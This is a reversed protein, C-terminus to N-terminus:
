LQNVHHQWVHICRSWNSFFAVALGIVNEHEIVSNISSQMLPMGNQPKDL